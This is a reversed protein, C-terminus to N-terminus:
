LDAECHVFKCWWYPYDCLKAVLGRRLPNTIIYRAQHMLDDEDRLRHDYFGPQWVSGQGSRVANISRTTRSKLVQVASSLHGAKLQFLWHLHDPMVVWAVPDAHEALATGQFEAVVRQALPDDMFLPIRARTVVTVAYYSGSQSWRGRQLKRISM